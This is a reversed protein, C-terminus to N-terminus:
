GTLDRVDVENLRDRYRWWWSHLLSIGEMGLRLDPSLDARPSSRLWNRLEPAVLGALPGRAIRRRHAAVAPDACWVQPLHPPRRPTHATSPLRAVEPNLAQMTAVYLGDGERAEQTAALSTMVFDHGVGPAIISARQGLLGTAYSSVGRITRTRYFILRAQERTGELERAVELFLDRAREVVPQQLPGALAHHAQGYRRMADFLALSARRPDSYDRTAPTFFRNGQGLFTDMALGDSVPLHQRALHRSLPVLWAHDVFQHEVLRARAQWNAPYDDADARLLDQELGLAEAVPRALDEEHTDGEDDSVSVARTALGADAFACALMRSDRGGSLPVLVPGGVESASTRLSQALAEGAAARELDQDVHAWPWPASEVHVAGRRWTLTSHPGLRRIEAFPTRDASPFRLAITSSWADWDITLPRSSTQVLPDIRSSFYLADGDTLWYIAGIGNVSSHLRRQRGDLLLGCAGAISAEEWTTAGPRWSTAEIWGLGRTLRRGWRLPDRDLALASTSDEHALRVGEGLSAAMARVRAPDHRGLAGCVLPSRLRTRGAGPSM